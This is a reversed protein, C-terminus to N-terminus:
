RGSAEDLVVLADLARVGRGKVRVLLPNVDVESLRPEVVMALSLRHLAEALAEIDYSDQNRPSELIRGAATELILRQAEEISLPAVGLRRDGLAETYIGGMGFLVVPGFTPDRHAGLIVQLGDDLMKEVVVGEIRADPQAAEVNSMVDRVAERVQQESSLGVVVGGIDSKHGIDPSDVKVVVPFGIRTAIAAAEDEDSATEGSVIPVGAKTLLDRSDGEGLTMREQSSGRSAELQDVAEGLASPESTHVEGYSHGGLVAQVRCLAEVTDVAQSPDQFITLKSAHLMEKYHPTTIGVLFCPTKGREALRVYAPIAKRAIDKALLTHGMFILVADYADANLIPELFDELLEPENIVHGTFDVPNTAAAYPLRDKLKLQVDESVEPLDLGIESARDAMIIGVGGSMTMLCVRRGCPLDGYSCAETVNLLADTDLARYVGYRQFVADFVADDGAMSATHSVAARSGVSSRGAKLLIVPKGQTRALELAECFRPGDQVGELYGAIVDTTPDLAMYAICDAVSIDAENGTAVWHSFKMGRSRALSLFYTGFAGSQCVFGINGATVNGAELSSTFSAMLRSQYSLVGLCNPGLINVDSDRALNGIEEQVQRGHEGLEAFGSSFVIASGVGAEVCEDLVAPVYSAPVAVVCLDVRDPISGLNPYCKLGAIEEYKQNVPYIHGEYGADLSYQIPRGGIRTMDQSAGVIAVTRPRFMTELGTARRVLESRNDEEARAARSM